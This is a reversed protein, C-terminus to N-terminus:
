GGNQSTRPRLSNRVKAILGVAMNLDLMAAVRKAVRPEREVIADRTDAIQRTLADLQAAVDAHEHEVSGVSM